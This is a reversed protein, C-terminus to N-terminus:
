GTCSKLASRLRTASTAGPEVVDTTHIMPVGAVRTAFWSVWTAARSYEHVVQIRHKRMLRVLSAVHTLRRWFSRQDLQLSVHTARTPIASSGSVIFVEHGRAMLENAITMAHVAVATLEPLARIMLIRM